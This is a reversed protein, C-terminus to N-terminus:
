CGTPLISGDPLTTDCFTVNPTFAGFINASTLDADPMWAVYLNFCLDMRQGFGDLLINRGVSGRTAQISCTAPYTVEYGRSALEDALAHRVM